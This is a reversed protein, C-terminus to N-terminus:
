RNDSRSKRETKKPEVKKPEAEKKREKVAPEKAKEPKPSAPRPSVPAVRAPTKREQTVAPKQKPQVEEKKVKKELRDDVGNNNSDQFYDYRESGKQSDSQKESPEAKKPVVQYKGEGGRVTKGTLAASRSKEKEKEKAKEKTMEEIQAPKKKEEKEKSKPSRDLAGASSLFVFASLVCVITIVRKM